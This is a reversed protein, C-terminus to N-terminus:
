GDPRSLWSMLVDVAFVMQARTIRPRHTLASAILPSVLLDTVWAETYDNRIEGRAAGRRLVDFLVQQRPAVVRESFQRYIDPRTFGDASLRQMLKCHDSDLWSTRTSEVIHLLDERVSGGPPRPVPGKAEAIAALVLDDKGAWRRYVTTRAVGARVAVAEISLRHYGNEILEAIAARLIARDRDTSRPRGPRRSVEAAPRRVASTM